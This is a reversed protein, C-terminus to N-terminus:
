SKLIPGFLELFAREKVNQFSCPVEEFIGVPILAEKGGGTEDVM